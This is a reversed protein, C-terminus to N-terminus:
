QGLYVERVRDDSRVASAPGSRVVEGAALVTVDDCVDFIFRTQHEVVIVTVGQARLGRVISAVHDVEQASLGALPEDLILLSPGGVCAAALQILQEVGHPVDAVPVRTWTSALGVAGLASAAQTRMSVQDRRAGPLLPWAIARTAIRPIRSYLGITTNELTSLERVLVASQFTRMVGHAPRAASGLGAMPQGDVTVTGARPALRGAVIDVLTSKGSGNPGILGHITGRRVAFDVGALALSGEDYGFVIGECALAFGQGAAAATPPANIGTVGALGAAGAPVELDRAPMAPALHDGRRVRRVFARVGGMFGGPFLVIVTVFIVGILLQELFPDIPVLIPFMSIFAAGLIPGLNTNLGGLIVMVLINVSVTWTFQGPSIFGLFSFVAGALGAMGSSLAFVAVRMRATQVGAAAAFPEADRIALLVPYLASARICWVAGVCLLFVISVCWVLSSGLVDLADPFHPFTPGGLGGLGGTFAFDSLIVTVVLTFIFTTIAFYLGSVRLSLAGLFAGILGVGVFSVPLLVLVPIDFADNLLTTAYAGIAFLGAHGLSYLGTMGAVLDLSVALIAYVAATMLLNQIFYSGHALGLTVVVYGIVLLPIGLRAVRDPVRPRLVPLVRDDSV